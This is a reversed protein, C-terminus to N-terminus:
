KRILGYSQLIGTFEPSNGFGQVVEERTMGNAMAANWFAIGDAEPQRDMLAHYCDTLFADNSKNARVYEDSSFFGVTAVEFATIQHNAIANSWFEVGDAEAPRGLIQVYLREVYARVKAMDVYLNADSTENDAPDLAIEGRTISYRSCIGSFEGSNVFGALVWKRSYGRELMLTWFAYGDPDVARTRGDGFFTPYLRDLFTDNNLNANLFEQSELVFFKACDAASARGSLILDRWFALGEAEVDRALLCTYMRKVFNEVMERRTESQEQDNDNANVVVNCTASKNGVRATIVANGPSLAGVRGSSSVMAVSANSSSWSVTKDDTTNSPYYSVSLAKYEGVNLTMSSSSLAISTLEIRQDESNPTPSPQSDSVVVKCTATKNGVTATIEATGERNATVNGNADVSAVRSNSKWQVSKDDTTNSPSYNVSLTMVQGTRLNIEAPSISISVLPRYEMAAVGVEYEFEEKHYNYVKISYEGSQTAIFEHYNYKGEVHNEMDYISIESGNPDYFDVIASTTDIKKYNGIYLRYKNGSSLRIKFYDNESDGCFARYYEGLRIENAEILTENPEIEYEDTAEFGVSYRTTISGSTVTFGPKLTLMYVGPNLGLHFTYNTSINDREYYTNTDWIIENASDYLVLKLHGYEGESDYPKTADITIVGREPVTFKVYHNLHQNSKSWTKVYTRDLEIEMANQVTTGDGAAALARNGGFVISSFVALVIGLTIIGCFRKM